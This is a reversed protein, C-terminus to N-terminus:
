RSEKSMLPGSGVEAALCFGCDRSHERQESTGRKVCDSVTPEYEIERAQLWPLLRRALMEAHEALEELTGSNDVAYDFFLM